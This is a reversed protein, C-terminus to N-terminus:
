VVTNALSLGDFDELFPFTFSLAVPCFLVGWNGQMLFMLKLMEGCKFMSKFSKLFYSLSMFITMTTAHHYTSLLPCPCLKVAGVGGEGNLDACYWSGHEYM